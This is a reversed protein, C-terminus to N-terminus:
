QDIVTVGSLLAEMSTFYRSFEMEVIPTLSKPSDSQLLKGFEMAVGELNSQAIAEAYSVHRPALDISGWRRAGSHMLTQYQGANTAHLDDLLLHHRKMLVTWMVLTEMPPDSIHEFYGKGPPSLAHLALLFSRLVAERAPSTALASATAFMEAFCRFYFLEKRVEDSPLPTHPALAALYPADHGYGATVGLVM